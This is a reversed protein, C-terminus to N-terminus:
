HNRIPNNGNGFRRRLTKLLEDNGRAARVHEETAAVEFSLPILRLKGHIRRRLIECTIIEAPMIAYIAPSKAYPRVSPNREYSGPYQMTERTTHADWVSAGIGAAVLAVSAIKKLAALSILCFMPSGNLFIPHSARLFRKM